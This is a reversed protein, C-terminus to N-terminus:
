TPRERREEKRISDVVHATEGYERSAKFAQVFHPNRTLGIEEALKWAIEWSETERTLIDLSEYEEFGLRGMLRNHGVEHLISAEAEELPYPTMCGEMETPLLYGVVKDWGCEFENSPVFRVSPYLDRLKEIFALFEGDIGLLEKVEGARFAERRRLAIRRRLEKDGLLEEFEKSAVYIDSEYTYPSGPPAQGPKIEEKPTHLHIFHLAVDRVLNDLLDVVAAGIKEIWQERLRLFGEESLAEAIIGGLLICLYEKENGTLDLARALRDLEKQGEINLKQICM